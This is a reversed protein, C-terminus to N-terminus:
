SLHVNKSLIMLVIICPLHILSYRFLKRSSSASPDIKFKYALYLLYGNIPLAELPFFWSTLGCYSMLTCEATLLLAHRLQTRLCLDPNTVSMMRYGARAYDHRLNWSLANFHPFQWSYLISGILIAGPTIAGTVATFGMVPPIAGVFSGIWTNIINWRKLPTYICSYLILNVAGLGATLPNVCFALTSLGATGTVLAFTAAHLSSVQGLVLPRSKTRSMQSDFPVELLQNLSAASASTLGTGLLTATLLAPDLAWTPSAMAYGALTTTVVLSTLRFKSLKLWYKVNEGLTPTQLLKWDLEYPEIKIPPIEKQFLQKSNTCFVVRPTILSLHYPCPRLILLQRAWPM